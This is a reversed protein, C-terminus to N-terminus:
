ELHAIYRVNDGIGHRSHPLTRWICTARRFICGQAAHGCSITASGAYVHYAEVKLPPGAPAPWCDEVTLPLPVAHYCGTRLMLNTM